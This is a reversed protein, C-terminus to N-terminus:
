AKCGVIWADYIPHQLGSIAPTSSFMWGRFIQRPAAAPTARPQLTIDLYAIADNVLENDASVECARATFILNNNFRVPPGGVEVEFRMSEATIKDIAEVIAVRRRQRPTPTEPAMRKAKDEDSELGEDDKAEDEAAADQDDEASAADAALQTPEVAPGPPTIAIPVAPAPDGAPAAEQGPDNRLADGIPDSAPRADQPPGDQRGGAVVAGSTALVVAAAGTLLWRVPNM